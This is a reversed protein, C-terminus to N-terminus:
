RSEPPSAQGAGSASSGSAPAQQNQAAGGVNVGPAGINAQGSSRIYFSVPKMSEKMADPSQFNIDGLDVFGVANDAPILVKVQGTGTNLKYVIKEFSYLQFMGKQARSSSGTRLVAASIILSIGIIGAIAMNRM